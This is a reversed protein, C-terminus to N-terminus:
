KKQDPQLFMRRNAALVYCLEELELTSLAPLLNGIYNRLKKAHRLTDMSLYPVNSSQTLITMLLNQDSQSLWKPMGEIVPFDPHALAPVESKGPFMKNFLVEVLVYSPNSRDYEWIVSSIIMKATILSHIEKILELPEESGQEPFIIIAVITKTASCIAIQQSPQAFPDYRLKITLEM